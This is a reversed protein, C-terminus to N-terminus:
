YWLRVLEGAASAAIAAVLLVLSIRLLRNKWWAIRSLRIIQRSLMEVQAAQGVAQVREALQGNTLHRLHGFYVLNDAAEAKHVRVQGVAPMVAAGASLIALIILALVVLVVASALGGVSMRSIWDQTSIAGLLLGSEVALLISAKVDVRAIWAEQLGHVRWAFECRDDAVHDVNASRRKRPSTTLAVTGLWVLVINGGLVDLVINGDARNAARL